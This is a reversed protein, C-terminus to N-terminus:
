PDPTPGVPETDYRKMIETLQTPDPPAGAPFAQSVDEFYKEYGAPTFVALM